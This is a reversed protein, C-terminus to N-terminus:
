ARREEKEESNHYYFYAYVAQFLETFKDLSDKGEQVIKEAAADFFRKFDHSLLGRAISYAAQAQLLRIKPKIIDFNQEAQAQRKIVQVQNYFKRVQTISNKADGKIGLFSQALKESGRMVEDDTFPKSKIDKIFQDVASIAHQPAGGDKKLSQRQPYQGQSM